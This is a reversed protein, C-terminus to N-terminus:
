GGFEWDIFASSEGDKTLINRAHFDGHVLAFPEDTMDIGAIYDQKKQLEVIFDQISTETFLDEDIDHETSLCHKPNINFHAAILKFLKLHFTNICKARNM